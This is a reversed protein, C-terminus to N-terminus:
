SLAAIWAHGEPYLRHLSAKLWRKADASLLPLCAEFDIEDKPLRNKAKYLLQVESRVCPIGDYAVILNDRRGRITADRRSWWEDGESELLM